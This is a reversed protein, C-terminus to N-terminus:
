LARRLGSAAGDEGAAEMRAALRELLQGGAKRLVDAADHARLQVKAHRGIVEQLVGDLAATLARAGPGGPSAGAVSLIADLLAQRAAGVSDVGAIAASALLALQRAVHAMRNLAALEPGGDRGPQFALADLRSLLREARADGAASGRALADRLEQLRAGVEGDAEPDLASLARSARELAADARSDGSRGTEAPSGVSQKPAEGSRPEPAGPRRDLPRTAAVDAARRVEPVRDM